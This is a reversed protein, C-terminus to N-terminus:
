LSLYKDSIWQEITEKIFYFLNAPDPQWEEKDYIAVPTEFPNWTKEYREKNTLGLAYQRKDTWIIHPCQCLSAFHAVGCSPLVLVVNQSLLESLKLLSVNRYDICEPLTYAETGICYIPLDYYKKLFYILANWKELSYNRQKTHEVNRAHVVIGKIEDLPWFFKYTVFSQHYYQSYCLNKCPYIVDYGKESSFKQAELVMYDYHESLFMNKFRSDRKLDIFDNAFDAYLFQYQEPCGIITSDYNQAIHRIIGQWQFLQWGFEGIWYGAFLTKSMM